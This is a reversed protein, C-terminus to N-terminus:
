LVTRFAKRFNTARQYLEPSQHPGKYSKIAVGPRPCAWTKTDVSAHALGLNHFVQVSCPSTQTAHVRSLDKNFFKHFGLIGVCIAVQFKIAVSPFGVCATMSGSTDYILLETALFSCERQKRTAM